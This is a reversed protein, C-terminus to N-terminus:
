CCSVGVCSTSHKGVVAFYLPVKNAFSNHLICRRVDPQSPWLHVVGYRHPRRRALVGDFCYWKKRRTQRLLCACAGLKRRLNWRGFSSISMDGRRLCCCRSLRAADVKSQPRLGRGLRTGARARCVSLCGSPPMLHGQRGFRVAVVCVARRTSRTTVVDAPPRSERFRGLYSVVLEDGFAVVECM